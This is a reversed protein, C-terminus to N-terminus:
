PKEQPDAPYEARFAALSDDVRQWTAPRGIRAAEYAEVAAEALAAKRADRALSALADLALLAAEHTQLRGRLVGEIRAARHDTM